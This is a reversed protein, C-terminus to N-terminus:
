SALNSIGDVTYNEYLPNCLKAESILIGIIITGISIRFALHLSFLRTSAYHCSSAAPQQFQIELSKVTIINVYVVDYCHCDPKTPVWVILVPVETLQIKLLYKLTQINPLIQKLLSM